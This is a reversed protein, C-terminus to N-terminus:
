CCLLALLTLAVLFPCDEAQRSKPGLGPVGAHKCQSDPYGTEGPGSLWQVM